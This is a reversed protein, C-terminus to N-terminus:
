AKLFEYDYALNVATFMNMMVSSEDSCINGFKSLIENINWRKQNSENHGFLQSMKGDIAHFKGLMLCSLM